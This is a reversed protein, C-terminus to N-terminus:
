LKAGIRLKVFCIEVQKEECISDVLGTGLRLAADEHSQDQYEQFIYPDPLTYHTFVFAVLVRSRGPLCCWATVWALNPVRQRDHRALQM